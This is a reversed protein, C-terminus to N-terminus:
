AQRAANLAAGVAENLRLMRETDFCGTARHVEESTKEMLAGWQARAQGDIGLRARAARFPLFAEPSQAGFFVREGQRLGDGLYEAAVSVQEEATEFLSCIHQGQRFGRPM